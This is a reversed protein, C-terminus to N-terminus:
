RNVGKRWTACPRVRKASCRVSRPSSSAGDWAARDGTTPCRRIAMGQIDQVAVPDAADGPARDHGVPDDRVGARGGGPDRGHVARRAGGARPDRRLRHEPPDPLPHVGGLRPRDAAPLAPVRAAGLDRAGHGRRGGRCPRGTREDVIQTTLVALVVITLRGATVGEKWCRHLLMGTIFFQVSQFVLLLILGRKVLAGAMGFSAFAEAHLMLRYGLSLALLGAAVIEIRALLGSAFLGVMLGYFVLEYPLTWYVGDVSRINAFRHLMTLNAAAERLGLRGEPWMGSLSLVGFTLIVAAIYAPYLRSFRSVVFDAIATTRSITMLMVFGSIMFLPVGMGGRPLSFLPADRHGYFADYRTTYHFPVVILAAL